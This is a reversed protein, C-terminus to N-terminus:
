KKKNYSDIYKKDLVESDKYKIRFDQKALQLSKSVSAQEKLHTYFLVMFNQTAKDPVSWLSGVTSKAGAFYFSRSISNLGHSGKQNTSTNCASLVVLEAPINLSMIESVSLINDDEVDSFVLGSLKPNSGDLVAHLALHM